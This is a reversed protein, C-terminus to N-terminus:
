RNSISIFMPLVVTTHYSDKRIDKELLSKKDDKFCTWMNVKASTKANNFFYTYLNKKMKVVLAGNRSYWSKSLGHKDDGISNLNGEYINILSKIQQKNYPQKDEHSVLVYRNGLREVAKCEYDVRYMDYYYKQEQAEFLYTMVYVEDFANFVSVPFSWFLITNEFFILNETKSLVKIENYKTNQYGSEYNWRIVGAEDIFIMENNILLQFDDNNLPFEEIVNMVEDLILAYGSAKLLEILEEDATQFSAHTSVINCGNIVLKKLNDLKGKGHNAPEVFKRNTVSERVRKVEDLFPTIYIFKMEEGSENMYQIAWSTKGSGMISDIVKIKIAM